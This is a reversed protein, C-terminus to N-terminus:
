RWCYFDYVWDKIRNFQPINEPKITLGEFSKGHTHYYEALGEILSMEDISEYNELLDNFTQNASACQVSGFRVIDIEDFSDVVHYHINEFEGTTKAYVDIRHEDMYGAFLNLCELASTHRLVVDKGGVVAEFWARNGLFSGSTLSIM